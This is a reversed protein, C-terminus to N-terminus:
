CIKRQFDISKEYIKVNDCQDQLIGLSLNAFISYVQLSELDVDHTVLNNQEKYLSEVEPMPYCSIPKEIFLHSGIKALQYEVDINKQMSGHSDPPVGIWTADIKPNKEIMECCKSYIQTNRWMEPHLTIKRQNELIQQAREVFPDVIGIVNYTIHITESNKAQIKTIQEIRKCHNWPGEAGDFNM